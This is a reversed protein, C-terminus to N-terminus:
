RFFLAATGWASVATNSIGLTFFFALFGISLLQAYVFSGGSHNSSIAATRYRDTQWTDGLHRYM